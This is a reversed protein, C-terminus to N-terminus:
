KKSNFLEPKCTLQLYSWFLLKEHDGGKKIIELSETGKYWSLGFEVATSKNAQFILLWDQEFGLYKEIVAGNKVFNNQSSFIHQDSKLSWKENFNYLLFLYPNVLGANNVDAPFRTFLDINGMFRHAVGYLPVFNHDKKDEARTADDGSMVEAGLRVVWKKPTWKIEPQFYWAQILTGKPNKGSQFYGSFTGYIKGKEFEVRGGNTHRLFMKEANAPDQFGDATNLFTLSFGNKFKKKIFSVGLFKYNEFGNPLFPTGFDREALQNFAFALDSNFTATNYRFNIADHANANARWNNEAFLRQNDFMLKQRGARISFYKGLFPEAWGEFIQVTGIASRPDRDGWVHIDQISFLSHFGKKKFNLSLRSRQSTFLAAHSSDTRLLRYGNRLETRPRIELDIKFEAPEDPRAEPSITTQAPSTKALVFLTFFTLIPRWFIANKPQRHNFNELLAAFNTKLFSLYICPLQVPRPTIRKKM